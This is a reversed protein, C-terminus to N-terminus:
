TEAALKQDRERPLAVMAGATASGVLQDRRDMVDGRFRWTLRPSSAREGDRRVDGTM